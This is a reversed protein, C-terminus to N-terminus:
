RSRYRCKPPASGVDRLRTASAISPIPESYYGSADTNYNCQHCCSGIRGPRERFLFLVAASAAWPAETIYGPHVVFGFRGTPDRNLQWQFAARCAAPSQKLDIVWDQPLKAAKFQ